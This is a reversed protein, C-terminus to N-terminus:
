PRNRHASIATQHASGAQGDLLTGGCDLQHSVLVKRARKLGGRGRVQAGVDVSHHSLEVAGPPLEQLSWHTEGDQQSM